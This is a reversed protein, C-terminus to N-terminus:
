CAVGISTVFCSSETDAIMQRARVEQLLVMHVGVRLDASSLVEVVPPSITIGSECIPSRPAGCSQFKPSACHKEQAMRHSGQLKTTCNATPVKASNPSASVEAAQVQATLDERKTLTCSKRVMRININGSKTRHAIREFRQQSALSAEQMAHRLHRSEDDWQRQLTHMRSRVQSARRQSLPSSCLPADGTAQSHVRLLTKYASHITCFDVAAAPASSLSVADTAGPPRCKDPHVALAKQRFAEKISELTLLPLGDPTSIGLVACARQADANLHIPM